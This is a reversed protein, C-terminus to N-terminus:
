KYILKLLAFRRNKSTPIIIKNTAVQRAESPLIAIFDLEAKLLRKSIEKGNNYITHQMVDGSNRLQDNYLLQVFQPGIYVVVSSYYGGDNVTIQNKTIIKHWDLGATDNYNLVLVENFNYINKSTSQPLGNVLIIENETAIDKQEAVILMGGDSRPITNLISFGESIGLESFNNFRMDLLLSDSFPSWTTESYLSDSDVEFFMTGALGRIRKYSFFSAIIAADDTRNYAIRPSILDVSDPLAYDQISSDKLYFLHYNSTTNKKYPRPAVNALICTKLDNTTVLDLAAMDKYPYITQIEQKSILNLDLSFYYQHILTNGRADPETHMVTIHQQNDSMRLRFNGRDGFDQAAATAIVIPENLPNLDHDYWQAVLNNEQTARVYKTKITLLGQSTFFLRLLRSKRLELSVGKELVLLQNYREIIVNKSLFRNRYRLIYIGRKNEGIVKTFIAGDKIKTPNSWQLVQGRASICTTMCLLM